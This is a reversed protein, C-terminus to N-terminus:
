ILRDQTYAQRTYLGTELVPKYAYSSVLTPESWLDLVFDRGALLKAYFSIHSHSSNCIIGHPGAFEIQSSYFETRNSFYVSWSFAFQLIFKPLPMNTKKKGKKKSIEATVYVVAHARTRNQKQFADACRNKRQSTTRCARAHERQAHAQWSARPAARSSPEQERPTSPPLAAFHVFTTHGIFLLCVFM